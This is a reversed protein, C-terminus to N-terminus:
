LGSEWDRMGREGPRPSTKSDGTSRVGRDPLRGPRPLQCFLEPRAARGRARGLGAPAETGAASVLECLVGFLLECNRGGSDSEAAPEAGGSGARVTDSGPLGHECREQARGGAGGGARPAPPAAGGPGREARPGPGPGAQGAGRRRESRARGLRERGGARGGAAAM